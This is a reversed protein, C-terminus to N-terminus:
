FPFDFLFTGFLLFELVPRFSLLIWGKKGSSGMKFNGNEIRMFICYVVHFNTNALGKKDSLIYLILKM